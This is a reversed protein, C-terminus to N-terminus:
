RNLIYDPLDVESDDKVLFWDEIFNGGTTIQSLPLKMFKGTATVAPKGDSLVIEGTAIFYRKHHEVLKAKAYLKEGIPLQKRYKLNLEITVGCLENDECLIARGMTEDLIAAAIGGHLVGPYGQHEEMTNFEAVLSNDKLAYFKTKLSHPNNIGCVLCGSSNNQKTLKNM